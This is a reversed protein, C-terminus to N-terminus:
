PRRAEEPTRLPDREDPPRQYDQEPRRAEPDTAGPREVYPDPGYPGAVGPQEAAPQVEYGPAGPALLLWAGVAILIVLLAVAIWVWTNRRPEREMEIDPM